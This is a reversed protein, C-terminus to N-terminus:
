AAADYNIPEFRDLIRDRWAATLREYRDGRNPGVHEFFGYDRAGHHDLGLGEINDNYSGLLQGIVCGCDSGIDLDGIRLQKHWGPMRTDLFAMGATVREATMRTKM